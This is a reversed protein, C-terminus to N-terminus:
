TQQRRETGFKEQSRKLFLPVIDKGKEEWERRNELAHTLLEDYSAGFVGCKNLKRATPIIYNDFFWLEGGYWGGSPDKPAHGKIWALYREEFLRENFKMYTNWAQMTHAIDSAQIIYEYIVNARRNADVSSLNDRKQDSAFAAEWREERVSKLQKDAIDTAIVANVLLQRFRDLEEGNTYICGRLEKFCDQNLMQWSLDVSNQEAVSRDRYLGALPDKATVLEANTLGTHDADHILASFVVTFLLLPDSSIGYTTDHITAEANELQYDINDPEIIRKMLKRASMIVHTCHEFNHFPVDRYLGSINTVFLHIQRVVNSPLLIQNAKRRRETRAKDFSPMELVSRVLEDVVIAKTPSPSIPGEELAGPGTKHLPALIPEIGNEFSHRQRDAVLNQLLEVLVQTTWRILRLRKGKESSQPPGIMVSSVSEVDSQVSGMGDDSSTGNSTSLPKVWFTEMSGMGKASIHESRKHLWDENGAKELLEATAGSAHIKMPLGSHELKVANNVTQGFLQVFMLLSSFIDSNAIM